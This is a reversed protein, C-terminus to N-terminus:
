EFNSMIEVPKIIGAPMNPFLMKYHDFKDDGSLWCCKKYKKSSGCPCLANRGINKFEPKLAKEIELDWPIFPHELVELLNDLMKYNYKKKEPFLASYKDKPNKVISISLMKLKTIIRCCMEGAYIDGVEHGCRKRIGIKKKCISCVAEEVISERSTFYVYPFLKQFKPIQDYIFKLNYDNTTIDFQRILFSLEIDSRDFDNWSMFYKKDLLNKYADTFHRKIICIKELCWAIKANFEDGKGVYLSKIEKLEELIKTYGNLSNKNLFDSQSILEKPITM